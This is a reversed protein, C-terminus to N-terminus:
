KKGERGEYVTIMCMPVGEGHLRRIADIACQVCRVGCWVCVCLRERERERKDIERETNEM